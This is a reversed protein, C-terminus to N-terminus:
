TGRFYQHLDHYRQYQVTQSSMQDFLDRSVLNQGHSFPDVRQGPNNLDSLFQKRGDRRWMDSSKTVNLSSIKPIIKLPSKQHMQKPPLLFQDKKNAAIFIEETLM